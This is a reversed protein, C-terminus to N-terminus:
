WPKGHWAKAATNKIQFAEEWKEAQYVGLRAKQKKVKEKLRKFLEKSRNHGRQM